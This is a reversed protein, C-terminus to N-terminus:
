DVDFTVVLPKHDSPMYGNWDRTDYVQASRLTLATANRSYFIYDIRTNRTAGFRSNDPYDIATGEAAARAWADHYTQTVTEIRESSAQDNMDAAIIRQEPFNRFWSLMESVQTTRCGSSSDDLHTSIVNIHRGNVVVGALAVARDCSLQLQATHSLPFRSLVMNGQGNSSWSGYRQAFHYYWTHGTKQTLLAAFRAPQDENGWSGAYKEVENLSIIDPNMNAMWTALRDIDYNNDTGVGHHINWHLVRIRSTSSSSSSATSATSAYSTGTNVSVHTFTGAALAGDVKSTVALGVYITSGMSISQSDVLTWNWGDSSRYARFTTGSRTLKVYQPAWGSGGSTHSSQGGTATRRQFAYGNGGSVLMFAHRANADLSDRMMVGAKTWDHVHQLSEVRAVIEGDGSLTRYAFRFADATDWIDRGSGIVTFQGSTEGAAGAAAVSGIDHTSWGSPLAGTSASFSSDSGADSSSGADSPTGATVVVHTFSAHALRSQDHSTVALGVYITSSMSITQSGVLTWSSGNSSRYAHITNGSRTLRVYQPATGSGGDTHTSDGGTATRRQFAVGRAPSVLMFAHRSNASLTDRMMVGAKSWHHVHELSEVRAVIEGDGSLTRYAFHFGDAGDWIDAGAGSLTYRGSTHGASGWPGVAGIDSSAWGSPLTSTSETFTSTSDTSSSGSSEGGSGGGYVVTLTPRVSVDAAGLPYYERYSDRSSGGPDLVAVRTWRSALRGSVADQVLATVDFSVKSGPTGTVTAEAYKAGLTGGANSWYQSSQRRWWTTVSTDFSETLYHLALRRTESNGGRVTLTLTASQIAANAPVRSHTDFKLLARRVYSEDSAARTVLLQGSYNASAYEGGRIAVNDAQDNAATNIVVTTQADAAGSCMLVALWLAGSMRFGACVLRTM